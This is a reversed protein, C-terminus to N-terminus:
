RHMRVGADVCMDSKTLSNSVKADVESSVARLALLSNGIGLLRKEKFLRCAAM